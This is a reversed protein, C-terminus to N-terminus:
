YKCQFAEALIQRERDYLSFDWSLTTEPREAIVRDRVEAMQKSYDILEILFGLEFIAEFVSEFLYITPHGSVIGLQTAVANNCILIGGTYNIAHCLDRYIWPTGVWSKDIEPSKGLLTRTSRDYKLKLRDSMNPSINVSTLLLQRERITYACHFGRVCASSAAEPYVGYATPEFWGERNSCQEIAYRRDDISIEDRIQATM